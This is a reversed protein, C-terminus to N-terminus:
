EANENRDVVLSGRDLPQQSGHDRDVSAEGQLNEDAIVARTIARAVDQGPERQGTHFDDQHGVVDATAADDLMQPCEGGAVNQHMLVRVEFVVGLVVNRHESGQERTM